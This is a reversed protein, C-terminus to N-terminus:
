NRANRERGNFVYMNEFKEQLHLAFKKKLENYNRSYRYMQRYSNVICTTLYNFAKSKQGNKGRFNPNFKDLKEFCVWVGEQIQDEIEVGKFKFFNAVNEALIYFYGALEREYNTYEKCIQKHQHMAAVLPEKRLEDKYKAVRRQYTNDLDLIVLEYKLKSRKIRQFTDILTEFSKNNIYENAM